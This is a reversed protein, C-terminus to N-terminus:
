ETEKKSDETDVEPEPKKAVVVQAARLLRDHHRYGDRLVEIVKGEEADATELYHVAELEWPEFQEGEAEIKSVGESDLINSVNRLVLQLGDHWGPAVADSPIHSMARELDDMVSLMKLLLQSNAARRIEEMEEIARKKYNALDAQARQAMSRFQEKERVAEELQERLLTMDEPQKAQQAEADAPQAGPSQDDGDPQAQHTEGQPDPTDPSQGEEKM